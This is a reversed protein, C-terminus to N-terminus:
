KKPDMNILKTQNEPRKHKEASVVRQPYLWIPFRKVINRKSKPIWYYFDDDFYFGWREIITVMKPDPDRTYQGYPGRFNLWEEKM